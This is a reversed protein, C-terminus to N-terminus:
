WSHDGEEDDLVGSIKYAILHHNLYTMVSKVKVKNNSERSSWDKLTIEKWLDNFLILVTKRSEDSELMGLGYLVLGTMDM